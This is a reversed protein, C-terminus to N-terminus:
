SVDAEVFALDEPAYQDESLGDATAWACTLTLADGPALTGCALWAETLPVEVGGLTVTASGTGADNGANRLRLQVDRPVADTNVFQVTQPAGFQGATVKGFDVDETPTANNRYEM